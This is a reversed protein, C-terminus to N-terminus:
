KTPLTLKGGDGQTSKDTTKKYKDHNHNEKKSIFARTKEFSVNKLNFLLYKFLCMILVINLVLTSFLAIYMSHYLSFIWYCFLLMSIISTTTIIILLLCINLILPFISLGALKTELKIITLMTRIISLKGTVFGEIDELLDM